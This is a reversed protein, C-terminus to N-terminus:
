LSNSNTTMNVQFFFGYNLTNRFSNIHGTVPLENLDFWFASLQCVNESSNRNMFSFAPIKITVENFNTTDIQYHWCWHSQASCTAFSFCHHDTIYINAQRGQLHHPDVAHTQTRTVHHSAAWRPTSGAACHQPSRACMDLGHRCHPSHPQWCPCSWTRYHIRPCFTSFKTLQYSIEVICKCSHVLM